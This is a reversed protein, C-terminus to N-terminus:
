YFYTDVDWSINKWITSYLIIIWHNNLFILLCDYTLPGIMWQITAQLTEQKTVRFGFRLTGM